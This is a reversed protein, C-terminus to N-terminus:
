AAVRFPGVVNANASQVLSTIERRAQRLVMSVPSDLGLRAILSALEECAWRAESADIAPSEPSVVSPNTVIM